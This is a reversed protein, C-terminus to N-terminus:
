ESDCFSIYNYKSTNELSDGEFMFLQFNESSHKASM